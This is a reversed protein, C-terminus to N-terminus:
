PSFRILTLQVRLLKNKQTEFKSLLLRPSILRQVSHQPRAIKRVVHSYVKFWDMPERTQGMDERTMVLKTGSM